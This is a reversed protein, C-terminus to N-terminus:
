NINGGYSGLEYRVLYGTFEKQFQRLVKLATAPTLPENSRKRTPLKVVIIPQLGCRNIIYTHIHGVNIEAAIRTCLQKSRKRYSQFENKRTTDRPRRRKSQQKKM